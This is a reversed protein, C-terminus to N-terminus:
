DRITVGVRDAIARLGDAIAQPDCISGGPVSAHMERLAAELEAIRQKFPACEAALLENTQEQTLHAWPGPQARWEAETM